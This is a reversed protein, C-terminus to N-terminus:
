RRGTPVQLVAAHRGGDARRGRHRGAPRRPRWRATSPGSATFVARGTRPARSSAAANRWRPVRRPALARGDPGDRSDLNMAPSGIFGAVFTNAPKDNPRVSRGAARRHRRADGRHPRGDDDGRDPRQTVYISTTKLLAPAAGTIETRMAARLKADLNSLPEDFLFVQPDNACSRAAWRSASASAAPCSGRIATSIPSPGPDGARARRADIEAKPTDKRKLAFSM